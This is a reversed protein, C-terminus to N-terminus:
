ILTWTLTPPRTAGTRPGCACVTGTERTACVRSVTLDHSMPVCFWLLLYDVSCMIMIFTVYLDRLLLDFMVLHSWILQEVLWIMILCIIIYQVQERYRRKWVKRWEGALDGVRRVEENEEWDIGYLLLWTVKLITNLFRFLYDIKNNTVHNNNWCSTIDIRIYVIWCLYCRQRVSCM